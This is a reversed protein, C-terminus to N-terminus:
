ARPRLARRRAKGSPGAKSPPHYLPAAPRLAVANSLAHIIRGLESRLCDQIDPQGQLHRLRVLEAEIRQFGPFHECAPGRPHRTSM